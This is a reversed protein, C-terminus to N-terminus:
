LKRLPRHQQNSTTDGEVKCSPRAGHALTPIVTEPLHKGPLLMPCRIIQATGVSHHRLLHYSLAQNTEFLDGNTEHIVKGVLCGTQRLPIHSPERQCSVRSGTTSRTARNTSCGAPDSACRLRADRSRASVTAAVLVSPVISRDVMSMPLSVGRLWTTRCFIDCQGSTLGIM